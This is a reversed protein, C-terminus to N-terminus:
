RQASRPRRVLDNTSVAWGAVALEIALYLGVQWGDGHTLEVPAVYAVLPLLWLPSLTPSALAIPVFVLTLYHPWVLPSILLAALVAAGLTQRDRGQALAFLGVGLGWGLCEAIIRPVGVAHGLSVLSVGAGGEVTSLDGLMRPYAGFGDFGLAAWALLTVLMGIGVALAAARWRRTILLWVALPWVFLKAVIVGALALASPWIRDRWHWAVATGLLLFTNVQGLRLSHVVPWSLFAAGFCRWDRVGLLWLGGVMAAVALVTFVIGALHLSLLALPVSALLAPAPYVPVAFATSARGGAREVAALHDLFATRYPDHGHLIAVGASYLDGHFDYVFSGGDYTSLLLSLIVAVPLVAFLVISGLQRAAVGLGRSDLGSTM